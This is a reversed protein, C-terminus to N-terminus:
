PMCFYDNGVVFCFLSSLAFIISMSSALLILIDLLMNM